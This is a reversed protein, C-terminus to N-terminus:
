TSVSPSGPWSMRRRGQDGGPQRQRGTGRGGQRRHHHHATAQAVRRHQFRGGGHAQEVGLGQGVAAGAGLEAFGQGAQGAHPGGVPAVGRLVQLEAHAAETGAGAEAHPAQAQEDVAQGGGGGIAATGHTVEREIVHREDLQQAAGEAGQVTHV